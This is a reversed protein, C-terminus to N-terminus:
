VAHAAEVAVLAEKKQIHKAELERQLDVFRQGKLPYLWLLFLNILTAVQPVLLFIIKIGLFVSSPQSAAPAGQTYAFSLMIVTGLLLVGSGESTYSFGCENANVQILRVALVEGASRRVALELQDIQTRHFETPEQGCAHHLNERASRM